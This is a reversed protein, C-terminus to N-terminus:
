DKFSGAITQIKSENRKKRRAFLTAYTCKTKSQQNHWKEKTEIYIATSNKYICNDLQLGISKPLQERRHSSYLINRVTPYAQRILNKKYEKNTM